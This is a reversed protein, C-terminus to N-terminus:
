GSAEPKLRGYSILFKLCPKSPLDQSQLLRMNIAGLAADSLSENQSHVRDLFKTVLKIKDTDTEEGRLTEVVKNAIDVLDTDGLDRRFEANNYAAKIVKFGGREMLSAFESFFVERCVELSIM